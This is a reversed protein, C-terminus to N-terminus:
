TIAVLITRLIFAKRLINDPDEVDETVVKALNTDRLEPQFSNIGENDSLWHCTCKIRM